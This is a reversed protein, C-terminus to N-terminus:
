PSGSADVVQVAVPGEATERYYVVVPDGAAMHQRLHAATNPHTRDAAVEPSVRYTRVAGEASRLTITDANVIEHSQVDLLIGRVERITVTACAGCLLAM